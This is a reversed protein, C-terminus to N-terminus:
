SKPSEDAVVKKIAKEARQREKKEKKFAKLEDSLASKLTKVRDKKALLDKEAKEKEAMAETLNQVSKEFGVGDGETKTLILRVRELLEGNKKGM